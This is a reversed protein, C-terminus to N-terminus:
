QGELWKLVEQARDQDLDELRSLHWQELILEVEIGKELCGLRIAELQESTAARPLLSPPSPPAPPMEAKPARVKKAKSAEPPAEKKPKAGPFLQESSAQGDKLQSVMGRLTVIEKSGWQVRPVGLVTVIQEEKVGYGAFFRVAKDSAEALKEPTIKKTVADEAVAMSLGISPGELMEVKGTKKNKVPWSWYFAEGAFEAERLVAPVIKDLDRPRQV